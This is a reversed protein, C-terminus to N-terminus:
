WYMLCPSEQFRGARNSGSGRRLVKAPLIKPLVVVQARATKWEWREPLEGAYQRHRAPSVGTYGGHPDVRM